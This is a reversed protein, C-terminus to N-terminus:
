QINGVKSRNGKELLSIVEKCANVVRKESGVVSEVARGYRAMEPNEELTLPVSNVAQQVELIHTHMLRALSQLKATVDPAFLGSRIAEEIALPAPHHKKLRADFGLPNYLATVKWINISSPHEEMVKATEDLETLLLTRLEERRKRDNNRVQYRYLTLGIVGAFIVSVTTAVLTNLWTALSGSPSAVCVYVTYSVAILVALLTFGKQFPGFISDQSERLERGDDRKISM